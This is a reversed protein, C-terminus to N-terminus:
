TAYNPSLLKQIKREMLITTLLWPGLHAIEKMHFRKKKSKWFLHPSLSDWVASVAVLLAGKVGAEV